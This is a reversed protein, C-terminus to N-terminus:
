HNCLAETAMLIQNDGKNKSWISILDDKYREKIM